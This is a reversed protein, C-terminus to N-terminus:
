QISTEKSSKDSEMEFDDDDDDLIQSSKDSEIVMNQEFDNNGRKAINKKLDYDLKCFNLELVEIYIMNGIISILDEFEILFFQLYTQYQQDGENIIMQILVQLFYYINRYILINNPDAYRIMLLQTVENVLNFIFLLPIVLFIELKDETEMNSYDQIVLKFSDFLLYLTKSNEDYEKLKCYEKYLELPKNTDINIYIDNIKNINNFTKCPVYTFISFFIIIFIFGISGIIMLIKSPPYSKVDMLYKSKIWCYDRQVHILESALFLLPIAYAGYKIITIEFVNKDTLDNINDKNEHKTLPFFFGILEIVVLGIMIYIAFKRHRNIKIKFILRSFFCIYIIEFTWFGIYVGTLGIFGQLILYLAYVLGIIFVSIRVNDNKNMLLSNMKELVEDPTDFMSKIKNSKELCYLILGGFFISPFLIFKDLLIHDKIKPRFPFFRVPKEKNSPNFGTTLDMLLYCLISILFYINYKSCNGISILAM